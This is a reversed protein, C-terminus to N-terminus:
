PDDRKLLGSIKEGSAYTTGSGDARTNWGEFNWGILTFQQLPLSKIDFYNLTMDMLHNGVVSNSANNPRNRDFKISYTKQSLDETTINHNSKVSSISYINASNPSIKTQNDYVILDKPDYGEKVSVSFEIKNNYPISIKTLKNGSIDYFDVYVSTFNVDYINQEWGAYLTIDSTITNTKSFEKTRNIDLYWKNTFTHSDSEPTPIDKIDAFVTNKKVQASFSYPKLNVLEDMDAVCTVTYEQGSYNIEANCSDNWGDEWGSPLESSNKYDINIKQTNEWGNCIGTGVNKVNNPIQLEKIAFTNAFAGGLISTFEANKPLTIIGTSGLTKYLSQTQDKTLGKNPTLFHIDKLNECGSFMESGLISITNPLIITKAIAGAFVSESVMSTDNIEYDDILSVARNVTICEKIQGELFANSALNIAKSAYEITVTDVICDQFAFGAIGVVDKGDYTAPIVIHVEEEREESFPQAADVLWGDGVDTVGSDYDLMIRAVSSSAEVYEIDPTYNSGYEVDQLGNNSNWNTAWNLSSLEDETSRVYVKVSASRFITSGVTKVTKPLIISQLSKCMNFVNSGITEVSALSITTLAQCNSFATNGISKINRPLSVKKLNKASSFGNAAIAAVIYEKGDIVATHPIIVREVTKDSLRVSCETENLRTFSFIDQNTITAANAVQSSMTVTIAMCALLCVILLIPLILWQRKNISVKM